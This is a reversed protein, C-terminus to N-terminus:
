AAFLGGCKYAAGDSELNRVWRQGRVLGPMRRQKSGPQRVAAPAAASRPAGPPGKRAQNTRGPDGPQWVSQQESLISALGPLPAELRSLLPTPSKGPSSSALMWAAAQGLWPLSAPPLLCLRPCLSGPPSAEHAWSLPPPPSLAPEEEAARPPQACAAAPLTSAHPLPEKNVGCSLTCIKGKQTPSRNHFWLRTHRGGPRPGAHTVTRPGCGRCGQATSPPCQFCGHPHSRERGWARDSVGM